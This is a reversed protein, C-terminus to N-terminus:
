RSKFVFRYLRNAVGAVTILQNERRYEVVSPNDKEYVDIGIEDPLWLKVDMSIYCFISAEEIKGESWRISVEQANRARLGRVEGNKWAKPLSPLLRIFGEHSQLLMETIGATGGFNGDIQFPPHNDFLNLHTSHLLLAQVNDFAAEGDLLRAWMNIIWARSWGTHGGGHALRRKLTLRAAEFLDPTLLPTIAKGPYLAFLHSIHRHGLEFEEYDLSWELLQGQKGIEPQPLRPLLNAIYEISDDKKTLLHSAEITCSWLARIIQSDMSPGQCLCGKEGNALIYTNEPSTSPCTVLRGQEDETLYDVFFLSADILLPYVKNLFGLDQSFEFHEWLHLCLWAAGMPWITAPMWQDQPACDGFIDTNHHAVFGRCGYMEKAVRQGNPQMRFLHDVIPIHCEGLHTIEAPWYNMQTNINITYKSGWPPTMEKNWIGQLNAPLSGPRSCSMLLYRGYQYYITTLGNDVYSKDQLLNQQLRQLREDTPLEDGDNIRTNSEDLTLEVRGFLGMYDDQHRRLLSEYGLKKAEELTNVCWEYPNEQHFDTRGTMTIIAEDCGEVILYGGMSKVSGGIPAVHVMSCFACGQGGTSGTIFVTDQGNTRQEEFFRMRSLEVRFGLSKQKSTKVRMVIVHDPYSAFTTREYDIGEYNYCTEHVGNDLDLRRIYSEGVWPSQIFMDNVHPIDQRFVIKVDALPEYHGQSEPTGFMSLYTLNEAERLSGERILAQVKPLNNLADPNVRFKFRGYWMSEENLQLYETDVGGFIMAGLQGNGIPLASEWQNM